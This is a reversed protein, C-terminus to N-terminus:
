ILARVGIQQMERLKWVPYLAGEGLEEPDVQQMAWAYYVTHITDKGGETVAGNRDRVCYVQQTQFKNDFFIGHSQYASHEAKCREIVESSCYKKLTEADGKMYANLVPKVAEQIEAVFEPLSFS